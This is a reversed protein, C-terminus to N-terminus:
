VLMSKHRAASFRGPMLELGTPRTANGLTVDIAIIVKWGSM